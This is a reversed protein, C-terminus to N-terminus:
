IFTSAIAPASILPRSIVSVSIFVDPVDVVVKATIKLFDHSYLVAM